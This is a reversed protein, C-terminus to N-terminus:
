STEGHIGQADFAPAFAAVIFLGGRHADDLEVDALGSMQPQLFGFLVQVLDLIYM